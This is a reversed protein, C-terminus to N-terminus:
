IATVICTRVAKIHQMKETLHEVGNNVQGLLKNASKTKSESEACKRKADDLHGQFEELMRQGSFVFVCACLCVQTIGYLPYNEHTFVKASIGKFLKRPIAAKQLCAHM